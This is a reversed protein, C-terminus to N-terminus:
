CSRSRSCCSSTTTRRTRIAAPRSPCTTTTASSSTGPTSARRRERDHLVPVDARRRQAAQAGAQEPGAIQMLDIYGIKRVPKGVNADTMEIKYVRKFKALDHFCDAGSRARPAPRTPAHRRRQRARHDPRDHRRDHQLRRHRQRQSRAPLELPPRDMEGRRRRVRPHAAAEKGDVSRGIRRRPTGCRAKSCRTSSSATRPPPWARTARPAACISTPTAAGPAGPTTVAYHDPSRVPKGDVQTEFVALVKGTM